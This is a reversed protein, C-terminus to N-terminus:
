EKDDKKKAQSKKEREAKLEENTKPAPVTYVPTPTPAALTGVPVNAPDAPAAPRTDVPGPGVAAIGPNFRGEEQAKRNEEDAKRQLEKMEAVSRQPLLNGTPVGSPQALRNIEDETLKRRGELSKTRLGDKHDQAATRMKTEAM